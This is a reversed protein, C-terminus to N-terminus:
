SGVSIGSSKEFLEMILHPHIEKLAQYIQDKCARTWSQSLSFLKWIEDPNTAEACIIEYQDESLGSGMDGVYIESFLQSEGPSRRCLELETPIIKLKKSGSVIYRSGIYLSDVPPPKNIRVFQFKMEDDIAKQITCDNPVLYLHFTVEWM